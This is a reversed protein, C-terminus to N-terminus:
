LLTFIQVYCTIVNHIGENLQRSLLDPDKKGRTYPSLSAPWSLPMTKYSTECNRTLLKFTNLLAKGTITLSVALRISLL